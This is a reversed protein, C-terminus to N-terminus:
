FSLLNLFRDYPYNKLRSYAKSLLADDVDDEEAIEDATVFTVVGQDGRLCNNIFLITFFFVVSEETVVSAQLPLDTSKKLSRAPIEPSEPVVGIRKVANDVIHSPLDLSRKSSRSFIEPSHSVLRLKKGGPTHRQPTSTPTPSM